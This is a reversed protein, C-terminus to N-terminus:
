LITNVNDRKKQHTAVKDTFSPLSFEIQPDPLGLEQAREAHNQRALTEDNIFTGLAWIQAPTLTAPLSPYTSHFYEFSAM